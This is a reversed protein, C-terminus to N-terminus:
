EMITAYAVTFTLIRGEPNATLRFSVEALKGEVKWYDAVPIPLSPQTGSLLHKSLRYNRHEVM